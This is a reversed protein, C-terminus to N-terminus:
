AARMADYRATVTALSYTQNAPSYGAIAKLALFAEEDAQRTEQPLRVTENKAM